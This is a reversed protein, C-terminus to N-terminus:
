QIQWFARQIRFLNAIHKETDWRRIYTYQRITNTQPATPMACWRADNTLIFYMVVAPCHWRWSWNVVEDRYWGNVSRYFISRVPNKCIMSNLLWTKWAQFTTSDPRSGPLDHFDHFHSYSTEQVSHVKTVDVTSSSQCKWCMQMQQLLYTLHLIVYYNTCHEYCHEVFIVNVMNLFVLVEVRRVFDHFVCWLRHQFTRSCWRLCLSLIVTWLQSSKQTATLSEKLATVSSTSHHPLVDLKYFM